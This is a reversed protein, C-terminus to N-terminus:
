FASGIQRLGYLTHNTFAENFNTSAGTDQMQFTIRTSNQIVNLQSVVEANQRIGAASFLGGGISQLVRGVGPLEIAVIAGGSGLGSSLKVGQDTTVILTEGRGLLGANTVGDAIAGSIGGAEPAGPSSGPGTIGQSQTSSISALSASQSEPEAQGPNLIIDLSLDNNVRNADSAVHIGQSVGTVNQLGSGGVSANGGSDQLPQSSTSFGPAAQVSAVKDQPSILTFSPRFSVEPTSPSGLVPGSRSALQLDLGAGYIEGSSTRWRSEMVIGFSIIGSNTLFRGRMQDLAHDAVERLGNFVRFEHPVDARAAGALTPIALAMLLYKNGAKM